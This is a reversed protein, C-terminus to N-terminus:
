GAASAVAVGRARRRERDAEERPTGVYVERTGFWRDAWPRTVCWNADPNPGMHHDYHWPLHARAWAPDVHAKRHVRWYNLNCATYTLVFAPAIPLLPLHVATAALLAVAEKGQAHWGWPRHYDEDIMENRRSHAHHEHWHFSWFSRRKKGRGHLVYKHAVWESVNHYVLAAPIGIM